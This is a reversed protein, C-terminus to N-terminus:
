SKWRFSREGEFCGATTRRAARRHSARLLRGSARQSGARGPTIWPRPFKVGRSSFGECITYWISPLSAMEWTSHVCSPDCLNVTWETWSRDVFKGHLSSRNRTPSCVEICSLLVPVLFLSLPLPLFQFCRKFVSFQYLVPFPFICPSGLLSMQSLPINLGHFISEPFGM